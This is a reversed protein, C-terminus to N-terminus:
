CTISDELKDENLLFRSLRLSFLLSRSVPFNTLSFFLSLCLQLNYLSFFLSFSVSLLSNHVQHLSVPCCSSILLSVVLEEQCFESLCVCVCVSISLVTCIYTWPGLRKIRGLGYGYGGGGGKIM